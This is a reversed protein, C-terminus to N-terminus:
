KSLLYYLFSKFNVWKKMQSMNKGYMKYACKQRKYVGAKLVAKSRYKNTDSACVEMSQRYIIGNASETHKQGAGSQKTSNEFQM